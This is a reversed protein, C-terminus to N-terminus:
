GSISWGLHETLVVVVVLVTLMLATWLIAARWPAAGV